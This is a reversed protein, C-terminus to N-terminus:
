DTIDPVALDGVQPVDDAVSLNKVLAAAIRDRVDVVTVTGVPRDKRRLEFPMGVRVGAERGVNLVVVGYDKKVSIVQGDHLTGASANAAPHRATGLGLASDAEAVAAEVRAVAEPSSSVATEVLQLAADSLAILAGALGAKEEELLRLDNVAKVLKGEIGRDGGTVAEIGLAEMRLRMKGYSRRFEESEANAAMLSKGLNGNVAKLRDVEAQLQRNQQLAAALAAKAEALELGGGGVAVGSGLGAALALVSVSRAIKSPAFM